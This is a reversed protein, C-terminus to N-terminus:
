PGLGKMQEDFVAVAGRLSDRVRGLQPEEIENLASALLAEAETKLAQVQAAKRCNTAALALVKLTHTAANADRALYARARGFGRDVLTGFNATPVILRVEGRSDRREDSAEERSAMKAIAAGLWDICTMATFPDNVGTSLARATIEVLEDVLFLLDKTPTRAAGIAYSARLQDCCDPTMAEAPWAVILLRGTYAFDGTACCIRVKLDHRCAIALVHDEAIAEVYGNLHSRIEAPSRDATDAAPPRRAITAEPETQNSGIAGDQGLQHMLQEGIRGIVSNVHISIPVHHVFYILVAISCLALLIAVIVAFQPVFSSEGSHITRLVVLCYVFTGIFTGLTLQNGRDGMFNTLVRPGYQAAAFAIAVITISFAVGAVTIMSAAIASLMERAAEPKAQQYWGIADLWDTASSADLWVALVGLLLAGVVMLSPVFWYSARLAEVVRFLNLQM